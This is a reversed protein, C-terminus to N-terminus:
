FPNGAKERAAEGPAPKRAAAEVVPLKRDGDNVRGPEIFSVPDSASVTRSPRTSSTTSRPKSPRAPKPPCTGRRHRPRCARASTPRAAVFALAVFTWWRDNACPWAARQSRRWVGLRRVAAAASPGYPSGCVMRQGEGTPTNVPLFGRWRGSAPARRALWARL